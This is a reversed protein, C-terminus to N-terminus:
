TFCPRFANMQMHIDWQRMIMQQSEKKGHITKAGKNFILKGYTYRNIGPSEIRNWQDTHRNNHRGWVAKM